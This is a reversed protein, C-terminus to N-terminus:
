NRQVSTALSWVFQKDIDIMGVSAINSCQELIPITAPYQM